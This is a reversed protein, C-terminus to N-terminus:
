EYFDVIQPLITNFNSMRHGGDNLVNIKMIRPTNYNLLLLNYDITEDGKCVYAIINGGYYQEYIGYELAAYENVINQNVNHKALAQSPYMAPNLLVAKADTIYSMAYAFFGGLSSGVFMLKDFVNNGYQFWLEDLIQHPSQKNYDFLPCEVEENLFAEKLQLFKTPPNRAQYGRIYVIM